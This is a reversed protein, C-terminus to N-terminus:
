MSCLGDPACSVKEEGTLSGDYTDTGSRSCHDGAAAPRAQGIHVAAGTASLAMPDAGPPFAGRVPRATQEGRATDASNPSTGRESLSSPCM